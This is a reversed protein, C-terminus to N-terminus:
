RELAIDRAVRGKDDAIHRDAGSNLLIAVADRCGERAALLLPTMDRQDQVDMDAGHSLLACLM